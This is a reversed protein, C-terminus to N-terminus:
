ESLIHLLFFLIGNTAIGALADDLMVGLGGKIRKEVWRIPFPKYIDLLRFLVFAALMTGATVPLAAMAICFGTMEDWVIFQPDEVGSDRAVIQCVWCGLAFMVACALWHSLGSLPQYLLILPVAAVTGATGPAYPSLGSGFGCALLYAPNRLSQLNARGTM